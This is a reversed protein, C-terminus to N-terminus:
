CGLILGPEELKMEAFAAATKARTSPGAKILRRVMELDAGRELLNAAEIELLANRIQPQVTIVQHAHRDFVHRTFMAEAGLFVKPRDMVHFLYVLHEAETGILARLIPRKQLPAHRYAGHFLGALCVHRENGWNRLIDHTRRWHAHLEPAVPKTAHEAFFREAPLM